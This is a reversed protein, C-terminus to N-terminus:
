GLSFTDFTPDQVTLNVPITVQTSDLTSLQNVTKLGLGDQRVADFSLYRTGAVFYKDIAIKNEYGVGGGTLVSPNKCLDGQIELLCYVDGQKFALPDQDLDEPRYVSNPVQHTFITTDGPGLVVRQVPNMPKWKDSHVGFVPFGVQSVPQTNNVGLELQLHNPTENQLSSAASRATLTGAVYGRDVANENINVLHSESNDDVCVLFQYKLKVNNNCLNKLEYRLYKNRMKISVNAKRLDIKGVSSSGATTPDAIFQAWDALSLEYHTHDLAKMFYVSKANYANIDFQMNQLRKFQVKSTPPLKGVRKQLKAVKMKLTPKRKRRRKFRRTRKREGETDGNPRYTMRSKGRKRPGQRRGPRPVPAKKSSLKVSALGPALLPGLTKIADRLRKGSM